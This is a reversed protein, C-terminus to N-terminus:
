ISLFKQFRTPPAIGLEKKFAEQCYTYLKQADSKQGRKQFVQFQVEYGTELTRDLAVLTKAYDLALDLHNFALATQALTSLASLHADSLSERLFTTWEETEEEPLFKGKYLALAQEYHSQATEGQSTKASKIHAQFLIFDIMAGDGFDLRYSKDVSQLFLPTKTPEIAKRIHSIATLLLNKHNESCSGWIADLITDVAVSQKYHVLLFKFVDRSKKRKWVDSSIERGDITLRFAGFTQVVVQHSHLPLSAAVSPRQEILKESAREQAKQFLSQFASAHLTSLSQSLHTTERAEILSQMRLLMPTNIVDNKLLTAARQFKLHREFDGEAKAVEARALLLESQLLKAGLREAVSLAHVFIADAESIQKQSLRLLGLRYSTETHHLGHGIANYLDISKTYCTEARESDGLLNAIDGIACLADAVLARNELREALELSQFLYKTASVADGMTFYVAGIERLVDAENEKEGLEQALLLAKQHYALASTVQLTLRQLRGIQQFCSLTDSRTGLSESLALARLLTSFADEYDGKLEAIAANRELVYLETQKDGLEIALSKSKALYDTARALDGQKECTRGLNLLALAEGHKDHIERKLSLCKFHTELAATYEGIDRQVNGLNNLAHSLGRLDGLENYLSIASQHSAIAKQYDSILHHVMGLNTYSNAEGKKEGLEKKLDLSRQYYERASKYDSLHYYVNGINNLVAAEGPKDKAHLRLGLTRFLYSLSEHYRGCRLHSNGLTNLAFATLADDHLEEALHFLEEALTSAREYDALLYACHSETRLAALYQLHEGHFSALSAAKQALALALSPNQHCKRWADDNLSAIEDLPTPMQAQNKVEIRV